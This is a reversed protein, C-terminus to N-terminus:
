NNDGHKLINEYFINLQKMYEKINTMYKNKKVKTKSLQFIKKSFEINNRPEYFHIKNSFLEDHFMDKYNKEEGQMIVDCGSFLAEYVTRGIAFQKDARIVYDSIFYIDEIESVEGIFIIKQDNDVIKLCQSFYENLGNGVILLRINNSNLSKFCKIIFDIGKNESIMGIVSFIVKNSIDLKYKKFIKEKSKTNCTTMDIPNNLIIKNKILVNYFEKETTHDIFIVGSAQQIYKVFKYNFKNNYIERVHMITKYKKSILPYLTISNLHVLDYKNKFILKIIVYKSYLAQTKTLYKRIISRLIKYKSLKLHSKLLLIDDEYPLWMPYIKNVKNGTYKRINNDGYNKFLTKTCILDYDAEINNLIYKLSKAAGYTLNGSHLIYLIKM